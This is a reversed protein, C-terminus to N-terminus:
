NRSRNKENDKKVGKIVTDIHKLTDALKQKDIGLCDTMDMIKFTMGIAFMLKDMDDKTKVNQLDEILKDRLAMFPEKGNIKEM